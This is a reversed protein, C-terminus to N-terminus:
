ALLLEVFDGATPAPLTLSGLSIDCTPLTPSPTHAYILTNTCINPQKRLLELRIVTVPPGYTEHSHRQVSHHLILPVYNLQLELWLLTTLILSWSVTHFSTKTFFSTIRWSSVFYVTHFTFMWQRIWFLRGSPRRRPWILRIRMRM